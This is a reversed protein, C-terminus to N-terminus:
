FPAGSGVLSMGGTVVLVTLAVGIAHGFAVGLARAELRAGPRRRTLLIWAFPAVVWTVLAFARVPEVLMVAVFVPALLASWRVGVKIGEWREDQLVLECGACAESGEERRTSARSWAGHCLSCLSAVRAPARYSTM